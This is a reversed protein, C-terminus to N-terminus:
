VAIEAALAIVVGRDPRGVANGHLAKEGAVPSQAPLDASVGAGRAQEAEALEMLIEAHQREAAGEPPSQSVALKARRTLYDERIVQRVRAILAIRQAGTVHNNHRPTM